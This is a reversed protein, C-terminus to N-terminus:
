DQFSEAGPYTFPKKARSNQRKTSTCCFTKVRASVATSKGGICAGAENLRSDTLRWISSTIFSLSPRYDPGGARPACTVNREAGQLHSGSIGDVHTERPHGSRIRKETATMVASRRTM